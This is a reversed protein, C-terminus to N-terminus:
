LFLRKFVKRVYVGLREREYDRRVWLKGDENKVLSDIFKWIDTYAHTTVKSGEGGTAQAGNVQLHQRVPQELKKEDIFLSRTNSPYM